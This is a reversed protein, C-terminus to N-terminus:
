NSELLINQARLQGLFASVDRKAIAPTTDYVDLLAIILADETTDELLRDWLFKGSENLSMIGRFDLAAQNVPIVLTEGAIERLMFDQRIKLRLGGKRGVGQGCLM